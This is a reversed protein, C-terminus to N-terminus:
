HSPYTHENGSFGLDFNKGKGKLHMPIPVIEINLTKPLALLWSMKLEIIWFFSLCISIKATKDAITQTEIIKKTQSMSYYTQTFLKIPFFSCISKEKQVSLFLTPRLFSFFCYNM